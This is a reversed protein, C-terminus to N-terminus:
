CGFPADCDIVKVIGRTAASDFQVRLRQASDYASKAFLGPAKPDTPVAHLRAPPFNFSAAISECRQVLGTATLAALRNEAEIEAM